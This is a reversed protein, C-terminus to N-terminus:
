DKNLDKWEPNLSSVLSDKKKRRWRKIEKERELAEKIDGCEEFYVLKNINYKTTFGKILKHKHEYMRRALNNTVGVYMVRNNWNTLVYVYYSREM